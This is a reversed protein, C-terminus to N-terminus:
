IWQNSSPDTSVPQAELLGRRDDPHAIAALAVAREGRTQGTLRAVGYETVIYDVDGCSTTIEVGNAFSAVIRSEGRSTRSPLAIVAAGSPAAHAARMFNTQGGSSAVRRSGAWEANVQGVTDVSFASNIAWLREHLSLAATSHTLSLPRLRVSAPWGAAGADPALSTAVSLGPDATKATGPFRGAALEARLSNPLMGSHVGLDTTASLASAIAESLAGLGLQVTAKAPVLRAVHEAIARREAAGRGSDAAPAVAPRPPALDEDYWVHARGWQGADVASLGTAYCGEPAVGVGLAVEPRALLTPTYAVANGLDFGRGDPAPAVRVVFIDCPLEGGGLLRDIDWLSLPLADVLHSVRAPIGGALTVIRLRGLRLDDEDDSGLFAFAGTTDAVLLRVALQRRRAVRLLAAILRDPQQPAMAAAITVQDRGDLLEEAIRDVPEGVM